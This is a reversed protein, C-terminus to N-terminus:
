IGNEKLWEEEGVYKPINPDSLIEEIEKKLSYLKQKAGWGTYGDMNPDVMRQHLDFIYENM